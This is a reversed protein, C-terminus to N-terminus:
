RPEGKSRHNSLNIIKGRLRGGVRVSRWSVRVPLQNLIHERMLKSRWMAPSDEPPCRMAREVEAQEVLVVALGAEQLKALYPSIKGKKMLEM